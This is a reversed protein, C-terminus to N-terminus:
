KFTFPLGNKIFRNAMKLLITQWKKETVNKNLKQQIIDTGQNIKHAIRNKIYLLPSQIYFVIELILSFETKKLKM